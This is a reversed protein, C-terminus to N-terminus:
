KAGVLANAAELRTVKTELEQVAKVLLSILESTDICLKEKEGDYYTADPMVEIYEQAIFGHHLRHSNQSFEETYNYTVPRLARLTILANEINEINEKTSRDSLLLAGGLTGIATIASGWMSGRAKDRAASREADAQMDAIKIGAISALGQSRIDAEVGLLTAAEDARAQMATASIEDFDPSSARNSKWANAINVLNAANAVQSDPGGTVTPGKIVLPSKSAAFNM